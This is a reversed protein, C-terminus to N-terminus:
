LGFVYLLAPSAQRGGGNSIVAVYEKGDKGKYIIPVCYGPSNLPTEWLIKGTKSDFARFM